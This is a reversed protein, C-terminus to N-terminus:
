PNPGEPVEPKPPAVYTVSGDPNVVFVAPDPAPVNATPKLQLLVTRMAIYRQVAAAANTGLADLIAQQKGETNVAAHFARLQSELHNILEIQADDIREAIKQADTKQILSQAPAIASLAIAFIITALTNKM